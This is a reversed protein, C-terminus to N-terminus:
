QKIHATTAPTFNSTYRAYGKTIRLDDIYGNLPAVGLTAGVQLTNNTFAWNTSDTINSGLQVGNIFARNTTGSRTVAVHTWTNSSILISAGFNLIWAGNAIAVAITPTGSIPVNLGVQMGGDGTAGILFQYTSGSTLYVWSEITFDGTGLNNTVNPSVILYDGTGDFYMSSGGFKSQTTSIQANGVTELNNMMTNDIIGANTYNLLISTNTIATVPSTPPTFASTYVATGNVFRVNSIYGKLYYNASQSTSGVLFPRSGTNPWVSTTNTAVSVGNVYITTTSGNRVVATHYWTNLSIVGASSAIENVGNIGVAIAGSNYIYAFTNQSGSSDLSWITSIYPSGGTNFATLYVWAEATVNNSSVNFAANSAVSLYDGNGDFYGSGGITSNSYVASPSFPSFRQVSVNGFRTVAFNNTSDDIFRNDACTLLSTNAIATLPTTSPTFSSTYVATGKVIRLNSIYGTFPYTVYGTDGGNGITVLASSDNLANSLAATAVSVGNIYYIITNSNRVVAHHSWTNLVVVNSANLLTNGSSHYAYFNVDRPSVPATNQGLSWFFSTSGTQYQSAIVPFNGTATPYIWAEMTFNSSGLSFASNDSVYLYDDVGDFYNSWNAGYPSFTGQTTNGNRTITFNNTSSDLFTNNHANNTGDGSLLLSNYMFFPEGTVSVSWNVVVNASEGTTNASATLLSTRTENSVTPTGFITNGSLSVGTPLTNASYFINAGAASTAVLSINSMAVNPLLTYSTNTTPSSWTVADPNITISFSRDTDQNQADTARVTFTYTTPSSLTSSTGTITGNSSFTAGPPLTGSQLSYTVTDGTAVVTNGFAATEYLSGLSGAATTWTPTGSYQIGPISIATGGDPNVIYIVYSGANASPSTFTLTTSNAVSVVGVASGNLLVSAGSVFGTGTLTITQGGATDAATDNGPYVISTVKLITSATALATNAINAAVNAKAFLTTALSSYDQESDINSLNIKTTM